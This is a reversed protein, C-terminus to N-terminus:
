VKDGKKLNDVGWLPQLNTYHFCERQEQEDTLDFSACPIIHDIHWQGYNDWSMGEAFQSELHQRLEKVSCGILEITKLSKEGSDRKVAQRIRSRLASRLRFDLDRKYRMGMYERHRDRNKQSRTRILKQEPTLSDYYDKAKQRKYERYEKDRKYRKRQHVRHSERHKEKNNARWNAKCQVYRCRQSCYKQRATGKFFNCCKEHACSKILPRGRGENDM